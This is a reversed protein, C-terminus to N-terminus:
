KRVDSEASNCINTTLFLSYLARNEHGIFCTFVNLHITLLFMENGWKIFCIIVWEDIPLNELVVSGGGRM